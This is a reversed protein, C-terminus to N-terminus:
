NQQWTIPDTPREPGGPRRSSGLQRTSWGSLLRSDLRPDTGSDVVVWSLPDPRRNTPGQQHSMRDGVHPMNSQNPETLILDSFGFPSCSLWISVSLCTQKWIYSWGQLLIMNFHFKWNWTQKWFQSIYLWCPLEIQFLNLLLFTSFGYHISISYWQLIHVYHICGGIQIIICEIIIIMIVYLFHDNLKKPSYIKSILSLINHVM